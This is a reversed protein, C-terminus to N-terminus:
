ERRFIKENKVWRWRWGRGFAFWFHRRFLRHAAVSAALCLGTLAVNTLLWRAREPTRLASALWFELCTSVCLTKGTVLEAYDQYTSSCFSWWNVVMAVLTLAVPLFMQFLAVKDEREM